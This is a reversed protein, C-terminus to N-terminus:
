DDKKPQKVVMQNIGTAALGSAIGVALATLPDSAPFNPVTFMGVIGLIAGSVCCLAPIYSDTFKPCTKAVVGLGYCIATITVVTVVGLSAFDM